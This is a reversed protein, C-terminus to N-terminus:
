RALPASESTVPTETRFRVRTTFPYVVFRYEVNSQHNREVLIQEDDSCGVILLGPKSNELSLGFERILLVVM